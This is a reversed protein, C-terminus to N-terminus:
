NPQQILIQQQQPPNAFLIKLHYSEHNKYGHEIYFVFQIGKNEYKTKNESKIFDLIEQKKKQNEGQIAMLQIFFYIIGIFLIPIGILIMSLFAGSFIVIMYIVM